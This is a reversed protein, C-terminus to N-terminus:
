ILRLCSSFQLVIIIDPELKHYVFMCNIASAREGGGMIGVCQKTYIRPKQDVTFHVVSSQAAKSDIGDTLGDSSTAVQLSASRESM